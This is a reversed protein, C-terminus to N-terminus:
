QASVSAGLYVAEDAMTVHPAGADADIYVAVTRYGEARARAAFPDNIQRELWAQQSSTRGKATKLRAPTARAEGAGPRKVM